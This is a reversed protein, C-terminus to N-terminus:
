GSDRLLDVPSKAPVRARARARASIVAVVLLGFGALVDLLLGWGISVGLDAATFVDYVSIAGVLLGLVGLLWCGARGSLRGTRLLVSVAVAALGLVFVVQGDGTDIGAVSIFFVKLWPGFTGVVVLVSLTLAANLRNTDSQTSM